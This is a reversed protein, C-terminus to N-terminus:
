RLIQIKGKWLHRDEVIEYFYIGPAVKTRTLSEGKWVYTAASEAVDPRVVAVLKGRASFVRMQGAKSGAPALRLEVHAPGIRNMRLRGTEEPEAEIGAQGCPVIVTGPYTMVPPKTPDDRLVAAPISLETSTETPASSLVQYKIRVLEGEGALPLIGFDAIRLSDQGPLVNWILGGGGWM